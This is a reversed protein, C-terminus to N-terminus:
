RQTYIYQMNEERTYEENCQKYVHIEDNENIKWHQQM